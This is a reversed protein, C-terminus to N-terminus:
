NGAETFGIREREDPTLGYMAATALNRAVTLTNGAQCDWGTYDCSGSAALYRGDHLLFLGCWSDCDNEGNVAAYIEKVLARAVPSCNSGDPSVIDGTCNGGSGEGFVEAWDYDACLTDLDIECKM